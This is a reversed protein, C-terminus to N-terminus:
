FPVGGESPNQTAALVMKNRVLTENTRFKVTESGPLPGRIFNHAIVYCRGSTVRQRSGRVVGGSRCEAFMASETFAWSLQRCNACLHLM